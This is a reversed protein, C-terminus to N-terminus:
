LLWAILIKMRALSLRIYATIKWLCAAPNLISLPVTPHPLLYLMTAKRLVSTVQHIVTNLTIWLRRPTVRIQYDEATAVELLGVSEKFGCAGGQSEFPPEQAVPDDDNDSCGVLMVSGALAMTLAFKTKM